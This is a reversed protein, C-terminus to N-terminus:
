RNPSAHAGRALLDRVAELGKQPTDLWLISPDRRFWTMQRRAYAAEEKIVAEKLENMSIEGRLRRAILRYGLGLRELDKWSVRHIRHLEEVERIAAGNELIRSFREEIREKITEPSVNVGIKLVEYPSTRKLPPVPLGTALVIELARMLRRPNHPDINRAREPDKKKLLAFLEETTRKELKERIDPRPPVAPFEAGYLVADIYFGTGGCMIPVKRERHLKRIIRATKKQYEAVTFIRRPSAIDLLHHPIGQMEKLTVKNAYVDLHKYVQRSDASLVEAGTVGYSRSASSTSLKKALFVALSSKGSATPGVVAIIKKKQELM